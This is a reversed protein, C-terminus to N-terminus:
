VEQKENMSVIEDWPPMKLVFLIAISMFVVLQLLSYGLAVGNSIMISAMLPPLFAAINRCYM